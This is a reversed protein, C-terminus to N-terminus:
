FRLIVGGDCRMGGYIQRKSDGSDGSGGKKQIEVPVIQQFSVFMEGSKLTYVYKLAAKIVVYKNHVFTTTAHNEYVPILGLYRVQDAKEISGLLRCGTLVLDSAVSHHQALPWKRCGSLGGEILSFEGGYLRYRDPLDLVYLWNTFPFLAFSGEGAKLQVLSVVPGAGSLKGPHFAITGELRRLLNKNVHLFRQGNADFGDGELAFYDGIIHVDPRYPLKKTAVDAQVTAGHGSIALPLDSSGSASDVAGGVLIFAGDLSGDFDATSYNGRIGFRNEDVILPLTRHAQGSATTITVQGAGPSTNVYYYSISVEPYTLSLAVSFDAGPSRVITAIKESYDAYIRDAKICYAPDIGITGDLSVHGTRGYGGLLIRNLSRVSAYSFRTGEDERDATLRNFDWGGAIGWNREAIKVLMRGRFARALADTSTTDNSSIVKEHYVLDYGGSASVAISRASDVGHANLATDCLPSSWALRQAYDSLMRDGAAVGATVYLLCIVHTVQRRNIIFWLNM